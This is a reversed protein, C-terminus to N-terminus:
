NSAKKVKKKEKMSKKASRIASSLRSEATILESNMEGVSEEAAEITEAGKAVTNRALRVAKNSRELASEAKKVVTTKMRMSGLKDQQDGIREIRSQVSALKGVFSDSILDNAASMAEAKQEPDSIAETAKMAEQAKNFQLKIVSSFTPYDEMLQPVKALNRQWDEQEGEVSPACSFLCISLFLITIIKLSHKM